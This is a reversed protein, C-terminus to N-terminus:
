AEIEGRGFCEPCQVQLPDPAALNASRPDPEVTWGVGGCAVCDATMSEERETHERM